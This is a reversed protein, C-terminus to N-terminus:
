NLQCISGDSKYIYYTRQQGITFTWGIATFKENEVFPLPPEKGRAHDWDTLTVRLGLDSEATPDLKNLCRLRDEGVSPFADRYDKSMLALTKIETSFIQSM